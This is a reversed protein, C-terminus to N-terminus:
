LLTGLPDGSVLVLSYNRPGSCYVACVYANCILQVSMVCTRVQISVVSLRDSSMSVTLVYRGAQVIAMAAEVVIRAPKKCAGYVEERMNYVIM